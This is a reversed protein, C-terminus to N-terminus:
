EHKGTARRRDGLDRGGAVVAASRRLVAADGARVVERRDCVGAVVHPHQDAGRHRHIGGVAVIGVAGRDVEGPLQDLGRWPAAGPNADPGVAGGGDVGVDDRADEEERDGLTHRRYLSIGSCLLSTAAKRSVEEGALIADRLKCLNRGISLHTLLSLREASTREALRDVLQAVTRKRGGSGLESSTESM